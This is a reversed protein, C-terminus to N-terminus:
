AQFDCKKDQHGQCSTASWVQCLYPRPLDGHLIEKWYTLCNLLSCAYVTALLITSLYFGLLGAWITSLNHSTNMQRECLSITWQIVQWKPCHNRPHAPHAFRFSYPFLSLQNTSLPKLVLCYFAYSLHALFVMSLTETRYINWPLCNLMFVDQM